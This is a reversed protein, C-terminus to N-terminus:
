KGEADLIDLLMSPPEEEAEARLEDKSPFPPPGGKKEATKEAERRLQKQTKITDKLYYTITAVFPPNDAAYFTSGQFANGFLGFETGVFLLKPDVHDEAIALVSGRAPLNGTIATWTRGADSSKLLYPAYDGNKHNDFSLYVTEAQHQSALLRTVYTNDPVGPFKDIKRWTQGGNDTVQVLGDDTGLYILGE